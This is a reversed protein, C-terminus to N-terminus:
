LYKALVKDFSILERRNITKELESQIDFLEKIAMKLKHEVYTSAPKRVEFVEFYNPVQTEFHDQHSTDKISLKRLSNSIGNKGHQIAL